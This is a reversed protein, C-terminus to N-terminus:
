DKASNFKYGCSRAALIPCDKGGLKRRLNGVTVDVVKANAPRSDNWVSAILFDRSLVSDPNEMFIRLLHFERNTLELASRNRLVTRAKLDMTIGAGSLTCTIGGYTRRAIAGVRARLEEIDFPKAIYDDAGWRLGLIKDKVDSKGTLMVIPITRFLSDKKLQLCFQLGDGDPLGRDLIIIDPKAAQLAKVCEKISGAGCVIHGDERFAAKVMELNSKDDEVIVITLQKM